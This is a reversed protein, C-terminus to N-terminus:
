VIDAELDQCDWNVIALVDKKITDENTILLIKFQTTNSSNFGACSGTSGIYQIALILKSSPMM